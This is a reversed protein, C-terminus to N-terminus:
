PDCLSVGFTSFASLFAEIRLPQALSLHVHSRMPLDPLIFVNDEAGARMRMGENLNAVISEQRRPITEPSISEMRAQLSEGTYSQLLGANRYLENM